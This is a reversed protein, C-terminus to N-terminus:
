CRSSTIDSIIRAVEKAQEKRSYRTLLGEDPSCQLGGGKDWLKYFFLIGAEISAVNLFDSVFGLDGDEILKKLPGDGSGIVFIPKRAAIYEFIKGTLIEDSTSSETTNFLLLIDSQLQYNISEAHSVVGTFETRISKSIGDFMRIIDESFCGVFRIYFEGPEIQQEAILSQLALVFSEPSRDGTLSGTYTFTLSGHQQKEPAVGAYDDPDYGNPIVHVKTPDVQKNRRIFNDRMPDSVLVISDANKAFIREHQLSILKVLANTFSPRVGPREVISDRIDMYWPVGFKNKLYLGIFHTSNPPSTTLVADFRVENYLDGLKHRISRFWESYIDMMPLGRLGLYYSMPRLGQYNVKLQHHTMLKDAGFRHTTINELDNRSILSADQIYGMGHATTLIEVDVGCTPLYKALKVVRQVAIGGVPPYYYTVILIKINRGPM